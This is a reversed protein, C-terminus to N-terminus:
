FFPTGLGAKALKEAEEDLRMMAMRGQVIEAADEIDGFQYARQLHALVAQYADLAASAQQKTALKLPRLWPRPAGSAVSWSGLLRAIESFRAFHEVGEAVIQRALQLMTDPYDRSLTAVVRAYEGDLTGSPREVAVFDALVDPELPRLARPRVGGATPVELGPTLAPPRPAIMGNKAMTWLLQNAWRLHRMESVAVALLEHRVFTLDDAHAPTVEAPQRLSYYAYLYELMVVHELGCLSTLEDALEEASAFPAAMQEVGPAYVAGIEHGELVFALSRWETNIQYHRLQLAENARALPSAAVRSKRDARLWDLPRTAAQPDLDALNDGLPFSSEGLVIDPHNSAWYDCACDRFDHMWPSCLSQTLEGPRFVDPIVGTDSDIYRRRYHTLTKTVPAPAPPAPPTPAVPPDPPTKTLVITVKEPRLDRVLRWFQAPDGMNPANTLDVTRGGQAISSLTWGGLRLDAMADNVAQSLQAADEPSAASLGPDVPDVDALIPPIVGFNFVLGPFFRRDLNRHDFELGPFCNGVGSELRTTVPNGVIKIAAKATLNRPFIRDTM